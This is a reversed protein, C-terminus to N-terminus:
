FFLGLHTLQNKFTFCVLLCLFFSFSFFLFFCEEESFFDPNISQNNNCM